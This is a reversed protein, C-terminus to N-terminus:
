LPNPNLLKRLVLAAAAARAPAQGLLPPLAQTMGQVADLLALHRTAGKEGNFSMLGKPGLHQYQGDSVELGNGESSFGQKAQRLSAAEEPTIYALYATKGPASSFAVPATIVKDSEVANESDVSRDINVQAYVGESFIDSTPLVQGEEMSSDSNIMGGEAFGMALLGKPHHEAVVIEVVGEPKMYDMEDDDEEVYGNEDVNEIIDLDEMQQLESLARQHMGTINKLGIYRVVNAPLVYEGTSLYAPIDDAVEEPTAGPPPDPVDDDDDKKIFEAKKEVSGGEAKKLTNVFDEVASFADETRGPRPTPLPPTDTQDPRPTPLPPTDTQDPRPTPLPPTDNSSSSQQEEESGLLRRLKDGVSEAVGELTDVTESVYESATDYADGVYEGVTDLFGPEKEAQDGTVTGTDSPVTDDEPRFTSGPQEESLMQDTQADLTAPRTRMARDFQEEKDPREKESGAQHYKVWADRSSLSGDALKDLPITGLAKDAYFIQSQLEPSLETFDPNNKDSLNKLEDEYELPISLNNKSIYNYFRNLATESAGSGDKTGKIEYQYIGRAPGGGFQPINRDESEVWSVDKAHEALSNALDEGRLDGISELIFDRDM